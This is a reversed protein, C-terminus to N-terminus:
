NRMSMEFKLYTRAYRNAPIEIKLQPPEQVGNVIPRDQDTTQSIEAASGFPNRADSALYTKTSSLAQKTQDAWPGHLEDASSGVLNSACSMLNRRPIGIATRLDLDPGIPREFRISACVGPWAGQVSRGQRGLYHAHRPTVIRHSVIRTRNQMDDFNQTLWVIVLDFHLTFVGSPGRVLGVRAVSLAGM